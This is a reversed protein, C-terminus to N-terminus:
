SGAGVPTSLAAEVKDLFAVYGDIERTRETREAQTRQVDEHARKAVEACTRQLEGLRETFEDRLERQIDRVLANIQNGVEFQM